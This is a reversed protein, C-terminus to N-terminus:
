ARLRAVIEVFEEAYGLHTRLRELRETAEAEIEAILADVKAGIAVRVRHAVHRDDLTFVYAHGDRQVVSAAPVTSAM